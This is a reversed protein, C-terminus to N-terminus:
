ISIVKECELVREIIESMDELEGTGIAETLNLRDTCSESVLINVGDAKLRKLYDCTESNYAALKVSDNMLAIINPKIRSNMLSLLFKRLFNYRYKKNEGSILIASTNKLNPIDSTVTPKIERKLEAPEDAEKKTKKSVMIYLAGDDDEPLIDNFGQSNLFKNIEPWVSPSDILIKIEDENGNLADRLMKVSEIASKGAANLTLM